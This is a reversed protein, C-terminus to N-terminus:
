SCYVPLRNSIVQNTFKFYCHIRAHDFWSCHIVYHLVLASFTWNSSSTVTPLCHRNKIYLAFSQPFSQYTEGSLQLVEHM